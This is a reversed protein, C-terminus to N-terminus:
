LITTRNLGPCLIIQSQIGHVVRRYYQLINKEMNTAIGIATKKKKKKLNNYLKKFHYIQSKTKSKWFLLKHADAENNVLWFTRTKECLYFLDCLFHKLRLKLMNSENIM